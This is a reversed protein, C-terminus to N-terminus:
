VEFLDVKVSNISENVLSTYHLFIVGISHYMRCYWKTPCKFNLRRTELLKDTGYKYKLFIVVKVSNISENVLSTYRLFLVGISHHYM